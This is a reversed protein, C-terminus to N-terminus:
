IIRTHNKEDIKVIEIMVHKTVAQGFLLKFRDDNLLDAYKFDVKM